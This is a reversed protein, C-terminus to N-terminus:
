SSRAESIKVVEKVMDFDAIELDEPSVGFAECQQQFLDICHAVAFKYGADYEPGIGPTELLEDRLLNLTDRLMLGHTDLNEIGM